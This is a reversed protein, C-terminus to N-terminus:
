SQIPPIPPKVEFMKEGDWQLGGPYTYNEDPAGQGSYMGGGTQMGTCTQCLDEPIKIGPTPLSGEVASEVKLQVCSPYLQTYGGPVQYDVKYYAWILDVRLLYEGSPTQSPIDFIIRGPIGTWNHAKFVMRTPDNNHFEYGLTYIKVWEGSGDYEHVDLGDPVQSLHAVVPGPHAFEMYPSAYQTGDPDCSGRGDPCNYWQNEKWNNPEVRTHALELTDGAKVTLVDTDAAHAFSDRGCRVSDPLHQPFTPSHYSGIWGEDATAPEVFPSTKNHGPEHWEGNVAVRVFTFHCQVAPLIAVAAIGCLAPRM